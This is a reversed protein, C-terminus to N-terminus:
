LQKRESIIIKGASTIEILYKKGITEGTDAMAEESLFIKADKDISFSMNYTVSDLLFNYGILIVYAHKISPDYLVIFEILFSPDTCLYKSTTDTGVECNVRTFYVEYKSIPPLKNNYTKFIRLMAISDKIIESPYVKEFFASTSLYTISKVLPLKKSSGIQDASGIFDSINSSYEISDRNKNDVVTNPGEDKAVYKPLSNERGCSLLLVFLLITMFKRM